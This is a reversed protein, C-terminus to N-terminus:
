IHGSVYIEKREPFNLIANKGWIKKAFNDYAMAADFLNEFRGCHITKKNIALCARWKKEGNDWSVGRYGSKNHKRIKSNYGNLSRTVKRLNERRNDLTNRNIHDAIYKSNKKLGLIERHMRIGPYRVAYFYEKWHYISWKYKSLKWYDEDDVLAVKNQTLQIEKMNCYGHRKAQNGYKKCPILMM